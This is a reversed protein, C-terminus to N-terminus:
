KELGFNSTIHFMTQSLTEYNEKDTDTRVYFYLNGKRYVTNRSIIDRQNFKKSTLIDSYIVGEPTTIDHRNLLTDGGAQLKSSLWESPQIPQKLEEYYVNIELYPANKDIVQYSGINILGAGADTPDIQTPKVNKPLIIWYKLNPGANDYNCKWFNEQLYEKTFEPKQPFSVDNNMVQDKSQSNEQRNDNQKNENSTKVECSILGLISIFILITKKM